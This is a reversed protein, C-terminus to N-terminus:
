KFTKLAPRSPGPERASVHQGIVSQNVYSAHRIGIENPAPVGMRQALAAVHRAPAEPAGTLINFNSTSGQEALHQARAAVRSLVKSEAARAAAGRPDDRFQQTLLDVTGGGQNKLAPRGDAQLARTDEDWRRSEVEEAAARRETERAAFARRAEIEAAKRTVAFDRAMKEDAAADGYFRDTDAAYMASDKADPVSLGGPEAYSAFGGRRDRLRAREVEERDMTHRRAPRTRAAISNFAVAPKDWPGFGGPPLLSAGATLAQHTTVGGVSAM